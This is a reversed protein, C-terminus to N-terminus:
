VGWTIVGTEMVLRELIIEVTEPDLVGWEKVTCLMFRTRSNPQTTEVYAFVFGDKIVMDETLKM